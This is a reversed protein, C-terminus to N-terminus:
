KAYKFVNVSLSTNWNYHTLGLVDPPNSKIADCLEDAYIFLNIDVKSNFKKIAYAKLFGINLPYFESESGPTTYSM